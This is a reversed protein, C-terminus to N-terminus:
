LVGRGRRYGLVPAQLMASLEGVERAAGQAGGGCIIMPNKAAGLRKAAARIADEDIAPERPALPPQPTVAGSAGGVAGWTDIACELAAPGRRGEHMARMAEAVLRPAEDAAGIHAAHD